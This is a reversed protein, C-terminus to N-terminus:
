PANMHNFIFRFRLNKKTANHIDESEIMLGIRPICVGVNVCKHVTCVRTVQDEGM